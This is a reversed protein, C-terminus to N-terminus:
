IKYHRNVLSFVHRYVCYFNLLINKENIFNFLLLATEDKIIKSGGSPSVRCYGKVFDVITDVYCCFANALNFFSGDYLDITVTLCFQRNVGICCTHGLLGAHIDMM